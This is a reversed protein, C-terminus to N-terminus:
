KKSERVIPRGDGKQEMSPPNQGTPPRGQHGGKGQGGGMAAMFRSEIEKQAIWKELITEAEVQSETGDPNQRPIKPVAGFNKLDFVDALTWWDIPFGARILQLHFLKRTVSNLEHLSYPTVTYTFNAAHKRAREFQNASTPLGPIVEPILDQPRFQFDEPVQGAEGHLEMRRSTHYWQFVMYKWMEGLDRIGAEMNRSQDKILPGLASMIRETSDGSPLQRAQSLATADAVGMQHTIRKEMQEVFALFHAPWNYFDASMLPKLQDPGAFTFDLGVVQNPVRPNIGQALAESMTNRDFARPPSLRARSADVMDRLLSINAEELKVGSKTLPFGLFTWPWDDSRFQVLPVKGHWYPNVQLNPDPTLVCTETAKILRRNPYLLCDERKAERWVPNGDVDNGIAIRDGLSPVLYSFNTGPEGMLMPQGSDNITDDDIYIYYIDVMEWPRAETPQDTGPGFRRLAASAYQVARSIVTGKGKASERSPKILDRYEPFERIAAHYPTEVRIAVAYAKQINHDKPLGLPLVDTPGYSDLVIEGKGKYWFDKDWRIGSYGTGAGCAYQWTKRLQRDAFTMTQWSMYTKNLLISQHNYDSQETKFAPIIRLNTQAAILEKLNRVTSETKVKSIAGDDNFIHSGNVLDMAEQIYDYAPQLRLYSRGQEVAERCWGLLKSQTYDRDFAGPCLYYNAM